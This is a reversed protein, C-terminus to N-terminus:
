PEKSHCYRLLITLNGYRRHYKLKMGVWVRVREFENASVLRVRGMDNGRVM